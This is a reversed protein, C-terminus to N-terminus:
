QVRIHNIIRWSEAADLAGSLALQKTYHSPAVGQLVVAEEALEVRLDSVRGFTRTRINQEILGVLDGAAESVSMM